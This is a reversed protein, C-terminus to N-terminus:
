CDFLCTSEDAFCCCAVSLQNCERLEPNWAIGVEEPSVVVLSTDVVHPLVVAIGNFEVRLLHKRNSTRCLFAFDHDNQSISLTIPPAQEHRLSENPRVPLHQPM